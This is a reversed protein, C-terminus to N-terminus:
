FTQYTFIALYLKSTYLYKALTYWTLRTTDAFEDIHWTNHTVTLICRDGAGQWDEISQAELASVAQVLM